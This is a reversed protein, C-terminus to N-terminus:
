SPVTHLPPNHSLQTIQPNSRRLAGAWVDLVQKPTLNHNRLVYISHILVCSCFFNKACDNKETTPKGLLVAAYIKSGGLGGNGTQRQATNYCFIFIIYSKSSLLCSFTLVIYIPFFAPRSKFVVLVKRKGEEQIFKGLLDRMGKQFVNVSDTFSQPNQEENM